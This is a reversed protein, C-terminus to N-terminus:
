TSLWIITSGLESENISDKSGQTLFTHYSLESYGLVVM